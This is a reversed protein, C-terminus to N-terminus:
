AVAKLKGLQAGIADYAAELESRHERVEHPEIEGNELAKSICAAATLLATLSGHDNLKGPRSDECLRDCPGTFRGNWERKGRYFTVFNMTATGEAYKSAQDDSVGLIAGVDVWTLKDDQKIEGLAKGAAALLNSASFVSRKGHIAPSSM